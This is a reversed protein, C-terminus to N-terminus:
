IIQVHLYKTLKGYITIVMNGDNEYASPDFGHGVKEIRWLITSIVTLANPWAYLQDFQITDTLKEHGSPAFGTVL